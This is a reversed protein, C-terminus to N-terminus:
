AATEIEDRMSNIRNKYWDYTRRLGEELSISVKYGTLTEAKETKPCRRLPSGPTDPLENITIKKNMVGAIRMVLDKIRVEELSNGIHLIQRETNPYECSRITLEIADDVYCFARIHDPSSVDVIADKEIKLFMEPIVHSFGMRPGYVNHFRLITFPIQYKRYYGFCAHEGVMKSLAYATRPSTIDELVLNVQEDTPIHIGYHKATGAYVESTSVFLLKRPKKELGKIWELMNLLSLINVRLTKDPNDVVNKVGVVATLAYMYDYYAALSRYTRPDTLDGKILRINDKRLIEKLEADLQGRSFNDVIDIRYDAKSESLRRALHYGIFGAGGAILVNTM